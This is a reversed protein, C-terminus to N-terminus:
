RRQEKGRRLAGCFDDAKGQVRGSRRTMQSQECELSMVSESESENPGEEARKSDSRAHTGGSCERRTSRGRSVERETRARRGKLRSAPDGRTLVSVKVVRGRRDVGCGTYTGLAERDYAREGQTFRRMDREQEDARPKARLSGESPENGGRGQGGSPDSLGAKRPVKVRMDAGMGPAGITADRGANPAGVSQSEGGPANTV